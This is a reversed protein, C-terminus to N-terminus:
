DWVRDSSAGAAQVRAVKKEAACKRRGLHQVTKMNLVDVCEQVMLHCMWREMDNVTHGLPSLESNMVECINTPFGHVVCWCARACSLQRCRLGLSWWTSWFIALMKYRHFYMSESVRGFCKRSVRLPGPQRSSVCPLVSDYWPVYPLVSGCMLFVNLFRFLVCQLLERILSLM